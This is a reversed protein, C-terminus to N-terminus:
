GETQEFQMQDMSWYGRLNSILGVDNLKYTFVGRVIAITGNPFTTRLVLVHGSESGAAYSEQSEIIMSNPAINQDFFESLAAKGRLGEGTPNTPGVGIPDEVLVDDAMLALWGAKDKAMVRAWSNRAAALAPHVEESM